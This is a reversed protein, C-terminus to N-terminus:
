LDQNHSINATYHGTDVTLVAPPQKSTSVKPSGECLTECLAEVIGLGVPEGRAESM